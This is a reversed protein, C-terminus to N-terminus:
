RRTCLELGLQDLVEVFFACVSFIFSLTSSGQAWPWLPFNRSFFVLIKHELILFQCILGWIYSCLKQLALSMALLVFPLWFIPFLDKGIRCGVSHLPSAETLSGKIGLLVWPELCTPLPTPLSFPTVFLCSVLSHPDSHLKDWLSCM